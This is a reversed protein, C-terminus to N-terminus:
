NMDSVRDNPGGAAIATAVFTIALPGSLEPKFWLTAGAPVDIDLVGDVARVSGPRELEISWQALGNRFDDRALEAGLQPTGACGAIFGVLCLMQILRPITVHM